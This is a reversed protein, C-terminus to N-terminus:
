SKTLSQRMAGEVLAWGPDEECGLDWGSFQCQGLAKASGGKPQFRPLKPCRKGSTAKASLAEQKSWHM